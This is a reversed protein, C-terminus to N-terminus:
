RMSTVRGRLSFAGLRGRPDDRVTLTSRLTDLRMAADGDQSTTRPDEGVVHREPQEYLTCDFFGAGAGGYLLQGGCRVQANCWFTRDPRDHRTVDFSCTDGVSVDDLGSVEEVVAEIHRPAEGGTIPPAVPGPPPPLPVSPGPTPASPTPTATPDSPPPGPAPVSESRLTFWALPPVLCMLSLLLGGCGVAIWVWAGRPDRGQEEESSMASLLWLALQSLRCAGWAASPEGEM